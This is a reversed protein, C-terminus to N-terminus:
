RVKRESEIIGLGYNKGSFSIGNQVKGRVGVQSGKSPVSRKTVVWISGTEDELKYVGGLSLVGFSNSVTGAVVVEKDSYKAPNAEIKAITTREPCGTAFLSLAVVLILLISKTKM